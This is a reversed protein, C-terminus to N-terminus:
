EVRQPRHELRDFRPDELMKDLLEKTRGLSAHFHELDFTAHDEVPEDPESDELASNVKQEMRGLAESMQGLRTSIFEFDCTLHREVQEGPGATAANCLKHLYLQAKALDSDITRNDSAIRRITSPPRYCEKVKALLDVAAAIDQNTPPDSPPDPLHIRPLSIFPVQVSM